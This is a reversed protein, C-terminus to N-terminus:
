EEPKQQMDMFRGSEELWTRICGYIGALLEELSHKRSRACIKANEHCLLCRREDLGLENRSIGKGETDYVDIDFLRGLPHTEELCVTMRKLFPADKFSIGYFIVSGTKGSISKRERIDIEIQTLGSEVARVGEEFAMRIFEDTKKPGPINMALTIVCGGPQHRRIEEQIRVKEERFALMEKVTVLTEM